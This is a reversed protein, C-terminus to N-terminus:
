GRHQIGSVGHSQFLIACEGGVGRPGLYIHWVDAAINQYMGALAPYVQLKTSVQNWIACVTVATVSGVYRAQRVKYSRSVDQSM